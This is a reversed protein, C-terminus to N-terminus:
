KWSPNGDTWYEGVHAGDSDGLEPIEKKVVKLKIGRREVFNKLDTWRWSIRLVDIDLLDLITLGNDQMLKMLEPTNYSRNASRAVEVTHREGAKIHETATPTVESSALRRQGDVRRRVSMVTGLVDVLESEDKAEMIAAKVAAPYKDLLDLKTELKKRM